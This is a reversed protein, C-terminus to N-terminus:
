ESWNRIILCSVFPADISSAYSCCGERRGHDNLLFGDSEAWCAALLLCCCFLMHCWSCQSHAQGWHSAPMPDPHGFPALNTVQAAAADPTLSLKRDETHLLCKLSICLLNNAHAMHMITDLNVPSPKEWKCLWEKMHQIRQIINSLLYGLFSSAEKNWVVSEM